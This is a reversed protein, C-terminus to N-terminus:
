MIRVPRSGNRGCSSHWPRGATVTAGDEVLIKSIKLGEVDPRVLVEERAEIHGTLQVSDVFCASKAKVVSVAMGQPEVAMAEAALCLVVAGLLISLGARTRPEIAKM